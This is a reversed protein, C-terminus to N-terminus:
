ILLSADVNFVMIKHDAWWDGAIPFREVLAFCIMLWLIIFPDKFLEIMFFISSDSFYCMLRIFKSHKTSKEIGSPSVLSWFLIIMWFLSLFTFLWNILIFFLLYGRWILRLRILRLTSILCYFHLLFGLYLKFYVIFIILFRYFSFRWFTWYFLAIM